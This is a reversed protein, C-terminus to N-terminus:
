IFSVSCFIGNFSKCMLSYVDDTYIQEIHEVTLSKFNVDLMM